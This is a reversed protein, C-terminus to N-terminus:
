PSKVGHLRALAETANAIRHLDLLVQAALSLGLELATKEDNKRAAVILADLQMRIMHETM